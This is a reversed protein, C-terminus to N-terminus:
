DRGFHKIYVFTVRYKRIFSCEVTVEVRKTKEKVTKTREDENMDRRSIWNVRGGVM